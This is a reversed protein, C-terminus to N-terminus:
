EGSAPETVRYLGSDGAVFGAQTVMMYPTKRPYTRRNRNESESPNDPSGERFQWLYLGDTWLACKFQSLVKRGEEEELLDKEKEEPLGVKLPMRVWEGPVDGKMLVAFGTGDKVVKLTTEEESASAFSGVFGDCAYDSAAASGSLTLALPWALLSVLSIGINKSTFGSLTRM